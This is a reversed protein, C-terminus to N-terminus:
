LSKNFWRFMNGYVVARANCGYISHNKNPFMMMDFLVGDLQLRAAYEYTNAPHVNDDATGSMLLLDARLRETFNLPASMRYGEFNQQPTSMYREAYVTDYFRWDTVPAVAVGAKFPSKDAQLCMLTEYGGYSWGHIGIRSADVWSQSALWRAGALQDLTEYYGLKKYVPFMFETGRGGTGRGDLCFVVYGKSAFYNEWTVSWRNLVTQSGPGSYQYVIVPYKRSPNFDSPKIVYANFSLSNDGAVTIFEKHGRDSYHRTVDANNLIERIKKGNKDVLTYIPPTDVNSYCTVAYSCDPAFQASGYGGEATLATRTGRADIRYVTRDIPSPAAAQCYANGLADFGYFETVDFNGQTLTRTLSGNYAYKYLHTFGSRASMIVFGDNGLVLKEYADPIIWADSKETFIAKSVTTKPNVSYIDMRNQERNLTTVLLRDGDGPAFDIRPIYEITRDPLEIDRTNRNSIDYVHLTVVSNKQGAVPYKYAFTGPYLEYREDPQCAGGYIPLTYTPVDTENSKVFCLSVNDPSFAMLSTTQFEEEYTWDTAGNIIKDKCGDTTVAVQTNYDLKRLYINNDHVFAIMRSDGSFVPCQTRAFDKSLPSLIRSHRDYVYYAATFSRRYVAKASNWVIIKSLDPSLIYGEIADLSSERTNAVDFVTESKKGSAIDYIDITRRDDSLQAYSKGDIFSQKQPSALYNTVYPTIEKVIPNENASAASASNIGSLVAAAAVVNLIKNQIKM